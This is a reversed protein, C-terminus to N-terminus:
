YNIIYTTTDLAGCFVNAEKIYYFSNKWVEWKIKVTSNGILFSNNTSNDFFIMFTTDPTIKGNIGVEFPTSGYSYYIQIWDVTDTNNTDNIDLKLYASPQLMIIADTQEKISVYDYLTLYHQCVASVSYKNVDDKGIILGFNFHGDIDSITDSIISYPNGWYIEPNYKLLLVNAYPIPKMSFADKVVGQIQKDSKEKKCSTSIFILVSIIFFHFIYKINM